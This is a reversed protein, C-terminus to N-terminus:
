KKRRRARKKRRRGPSKEKVDDTKPTVAFPITFKGAKIEGTTMGPYELDIRILVDNTGGLVGSKWTVMTVYKKTKLVDRSSGQHPELQAKRRKMIRRADADVKDYASERWKKADKLQKKRASADKIKNEIRSKRKAYHKDVAARRDKRWDDLDLKTGDKKKRVFDKKPAKDQFSKVVVTVRGQEVKVSGDWAGYHEKGWKKVKRDVDGWKLFVHAVLRGTTSQEDPVAYTVFGRVLDSDSNKREITASQQARLAVVRERRERGARKPKPRDPPGAALVAGALCMTASALAYRIM